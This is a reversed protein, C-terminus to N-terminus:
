VQVAQEELPEQIVLLVVEVGLQVQVVVEALVLIVLHHLPTKQITEMTVKLRVLPLHIVLEQQDLVLLVVVAQDVQEELLTLAVVVLVLLVELDVV